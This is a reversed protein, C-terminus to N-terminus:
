LHLSLSHGFFIKLFGTPSGFKGALTGLERPQDGLDLFYEYRGWLPDCFNRSPTPVPRLSNLTWPSPPNLFLERELPNSIRHFSVITSSDWDTLGPFFCPNVDKHVMNVYSWQYYIVHVTVDSRVVSKGLALCKGTYLLTIQLQTISSCTM